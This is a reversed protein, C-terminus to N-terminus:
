EPCVITVAPLEATVTLAEEILLTLPPMALLLKPCGVVTALPVILILPPVNV